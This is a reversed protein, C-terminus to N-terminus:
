EEKKLWETRLSGGDRWGDLDPTQAIDDEESKAELLRSCSRGRPPKSGSVLVDDAEERKVLMATIAPRACLKDTLSLITTAALRNPIFPFTTRRDPTHIEARCMPCVVQEHWAGCGHLKSFFWKLICLGCFTHGCSPANLSHPASFVEYCSHPHDPASRPVQAPRRSVTSM